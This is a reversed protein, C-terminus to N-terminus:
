RSPWPWCAGALWCALVTCMLRRSQTEESETPLALASSSPSHPFPEEVFSHFLAFSLLVLSTNSSDSIQGQHKQLFAGPIGQKSDSVDPGGEEPLESISLAHWIHSHLCPPCRGKPGPRHPPPPGVSRCLCCNDDM